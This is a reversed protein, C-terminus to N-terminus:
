VASKLGAFKALASFAPAKKASDDPLPPAPGEIM